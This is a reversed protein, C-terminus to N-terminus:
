NTLPLAISAYKPIFKRFYDIIGLFSQQSTPQRKIPQFLFINVANITEDSPTVIEDKIIFGLYNVQPKLIQCKKWNIVLGHASAVQLVRALRQIDKEFDMSSIILDDM